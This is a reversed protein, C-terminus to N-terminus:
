SCLVVCSKGALIAMQAVPGSRIFSGDGMCVDVVLM